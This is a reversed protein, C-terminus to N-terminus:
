QITYGNKIYLDYGPMYNITQKTFNEILYTSNTVTLGTKIYIILAHSIIDGSSTYIILNNAIESSEIQITTLAFCYAFAGDEISTVNEPIRISSLDECYEFASNSISTVSTPITISSM